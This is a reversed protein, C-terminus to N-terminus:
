DGKSVHHETIYSKNLLEISHQSRFCVQDKKKGYLKTRYILKEFSLEGNNFQEALLEFEKTKGDLLPAFVVDANEFDTIVEAAIDPIEIRCLYLVIYLDETDRLLKIIKLDSLDVHFEYVSGSGTRRIAWAKAQNFHTTLYIGPGLDLNNRISQTEFTRLNKVSSGHYLKIILPKM